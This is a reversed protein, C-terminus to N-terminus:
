RGSREAARWVRAIAEDREVDAGFPAVSVNRFEAYFRTWREAAACWEDDRMPEDVETPKETVLHSKM